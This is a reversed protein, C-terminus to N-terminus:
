VETKNEIISFISPVENSQRIYDKIAAYGAKESTEIQQRVTTPKTNMTGSTWDRYLVKAAALNESARKILSPTPSPVSLGERTLKDDIVTDAKKILEGITENEQITDILLQVDAATSYPM